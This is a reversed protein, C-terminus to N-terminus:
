WAAYDCVGDRVILLGTKCTLDCASASDEAYVFDDHEIITLGFSTRRFLSAICGVRVRVKEEIVDQGVQFSRRIQPSGEKGHM